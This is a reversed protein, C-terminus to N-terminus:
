ETVPVDISKDENTRLRVGVGGTVPAVVANDYGVGYLYYDGKRLGDFKYNGSADATVQADYASVAAGPFDTAGYKIYVVSNPIAAGHHEVVGSISSKGGPGEKKCSVTSFSIVAFLLIYKIVKIKM